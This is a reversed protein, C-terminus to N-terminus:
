STCIVLNSYVVLNGIHLLMLHLGHERLREVKHKHQKVPSRIGSSLHLHQQVVGLSFPLPMHCDQRDCFCLITLTPISRQLGDLRVGQCPLTMQLLHCLFMDLQSKFTELSPSKMAERPLRNWQEAVSLTFLNKM